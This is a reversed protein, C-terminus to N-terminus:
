SFCKERFSMAELGVKWVLIRSSEPARRGFCESLATWRWPRMIGWVVRDPTEGSPLKNCEWNRLLMLMIVYYFCLNNSNSSLPALRKSGLLGGRTSYSTNCCIVMWIESRFNWHNKPQWCVCTQRASINMEWKGLFVSSLSINKELSPVCCFVSRVNFQQVTTGSRRYESPVLHRPRLGFRVLSLPLYSSCTLTEM